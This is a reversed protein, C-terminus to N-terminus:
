DSILVNFLASHALKLLGTGILRPVHSLCHRLFALGETQVPHTQCPHGRTQKALSEPGMQHSIKLYPCILQGTTDLWPFRIVGCTPFLVAPTISSSWPPSTCTKQSHSIFYWIFFMLFCSILATISTPGEMVKSDATNNFRPSCSRPRCTEDKREHCTDNGRQKRGAEVHDTSVGHVGHRQSQTQSLSCTFEVSFDEGSPSLLLTARGEESRVITEGGPGLTADCSSWEPWLVDSDLAFFPQLVILLVYLYGYGCMMQFLLSSHLEQYRRTTTLSSNRHCIHGVQM